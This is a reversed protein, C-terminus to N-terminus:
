GARLVESPTRGFEKRFQTAFRGPNGFGWRSAVATVTVGDDHAVELDHRAHALRVRRLYAMPTTDLHRRFALQLARVSMSAGRAIDAASIDAGAHDEIYAIARRVTESHADSRDQPTTGTMLTNPFTSLSVAALLRAAESAIFRAGPEDSDEEAIDRVYACTSRWRRAASSSVPEHGVFRVPEQGTGTVGAVDDLLSPRIVVVSVSIEDVTAAYSQGPNAVLYSQGARYRRLDGDSDFATRGSTLETFVLSELPDVEASLGLGFELEDFRVDSTLTRQHFRMVTDGSPRAAHVSTRAYTQGLLTVAEELSATEFTTDDGAATVSM